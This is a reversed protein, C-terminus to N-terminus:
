MGITLKTGDGAMVIDEEGNLLYYTVDAVRQFVSPNILKRFESNLLGVTAVGAFGSRMADAVEQETAIRNGIVLLKILHTFVGAISSTYLYTRGDVKVAITMTPDESKDLFPFCRTIVPPQICYEKHVPYIHNYGAVGRQLKGLLITRSGSNNFLYGTAM